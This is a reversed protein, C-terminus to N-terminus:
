SSAALSPLTGSCARRTAGCATTCAAHPPTRTTPGARPWASSHTHTHTHTHTTPIHTPIHTHIHPPSTPNLNHHHRVSLCDLRSVWGALMRGKWSRSRLLLRRRRRRRLLLLLWRMWKGNGWRGVEAAVAKATPGAAALARCIQYGTSPHVLGLAGGFAVVRQERKPLVGGMPIYCFEEEEVALVKVGLHKLRLDMRRKCEDFKMPPRAVLSTEEFFVRRRQGDQTPGMPMAYMFTPEKAAAAQNTPRPTTTHNSDLTKTSCLLPALLYTRWYFYVFVKLCRFGEDYIVSDMWRSVDWCGLGGVGCCARGPRVAGVEGLADGGFYDTRYDMLTMADEAYPCVDVEAEIGYAVQVGPDHVGDLEVLQSSYGACDVIMRATV